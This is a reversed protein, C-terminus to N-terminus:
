FEFLIWKTGSYGKFSESIQIITKQLDAEYERILNRVEDEQLGPTIDEKNQEKAQFEKSTQDVINSLNDHELKNYLEMKVKQFTRM